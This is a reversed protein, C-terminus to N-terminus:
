NTTQGALTPLGIRADKIQADFDTYGWGTGLPGRIHPHNIRERLPLHRAKQAPALREYDDYSMGTRKLRTGNGGGREYIRTADYDPGSPSIMIQNWGGELHADLGTRPDKNQSAAPGKWAKLTEGPPIEMVVFQGNPNWDPWVALHKRWAAKPDPSSMIRQWVDEDLWCDSMAGNSPSVVRYLKAPGKIELHEIRHFTSLKKSIDPWGKQKKKAIQELADKDKRDLGPFDGERGKSLWKPPPEAQRMLTVAPTEPLAGRFHINSMDVIGHLHVLNEMELRHIIADLTRQLPEMARGLGDNARAHVHKVMAVSARAREGVAGPLWSVKGLLGEMIQICRTFNDQLARVTLKGKLTRIQDALWQLVEDIHKESVYRQVNRKRLYTIVGNMGKDVAKEIQAPSYRRVSVFFLKLVGKVLSGLSPFLGVLTLGLSVYLWTNDAEDEARAIAKSNAILDRVDCIQDVLPIMSVAADFAIQGTSRSENFDGQIAEWFWEWTIRETSATSGTEWALADRLQVENIAM